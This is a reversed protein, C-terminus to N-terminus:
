RRMLAAGVLHVAVMSFESGGCIGAADRSVGL